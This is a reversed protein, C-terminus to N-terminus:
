FAPAKNIAASGLASTAGLVAGLPSPTALPANMISSNTGSAATSYGLPNLVQQQGTLMSAGQLKANENNTLASTMNNDFSSALGNDFDGMEATKFGNPQAATNGGMSRLLSARAPLASAATTGNNYNTIANTYPLGNAMLNTAMPNIENYATQQEQQNQAATATQQASLAAQQTAANQQAQSPGGGM